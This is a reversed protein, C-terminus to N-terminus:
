NPIPFAISRCGAFNNELQMFILFCARLHLSCVHLFVFFFLWTAAAKQERVPGYHAWFGMAGRALDNPVRFSLGSDGDYKAARM